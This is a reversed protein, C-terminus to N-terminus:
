WFGILKACLTGDKNVQHHNMEQGISDATESVNELVTLADGQALIM